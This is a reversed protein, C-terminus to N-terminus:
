GFQSVALAIVFLFVGLVYAMPLLDWLTTEISGWTTTDVDVTNNIAEPLLVSALLGIILLGVVLTVGSKIPMAARDHTGPDDLATLFKRFM